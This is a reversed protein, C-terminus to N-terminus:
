GNHELLDSSSSLLVIKGIQVELLLNLGLTDCKSGNPSRRANLM